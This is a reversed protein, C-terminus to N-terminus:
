PVTRRSSLASKLDKRRGSRGHMAHASGDKQVTVVNDGPAYDLGETVLTHLQTSSQGFAIDDADCHIMAALAEKARRMM